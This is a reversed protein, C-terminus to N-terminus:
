IDKFIDQCFINDGVGGRQLSFIYTMDKINKFIDLCFINDGM